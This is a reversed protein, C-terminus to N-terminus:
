KENGDFFMKVIKFFRHENKYEYIAIFSRNEDYVLVQEGDDVKEIMPDMWLIDRHKFGNGHRVAIAAEPKLYIKKLQHFMEDVPIICEMLTDNNANEIENQEFNNEEEM